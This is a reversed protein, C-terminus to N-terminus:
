LSHFVNQVVLKNLTRFDISLRSKKGDDKKYIIPFVFPSVYEEIIRAELPAKFQNIIEEDDPILCKYPRSTSYKDRILKM